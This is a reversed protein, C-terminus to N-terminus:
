ILVCNFFVKEIDKEEPEEARLGHLESYGTLVRQFKM